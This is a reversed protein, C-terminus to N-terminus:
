EAPANLEAAAVLSQCRMTHRNGVICAATDYTEKGLLGATALAIGPAIVLASL